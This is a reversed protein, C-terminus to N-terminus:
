WAAKLVSEREPVLHILPLNKDEGNNNFHVDFAMSIRLEDTPNPDVWHVTTAPFYVLTGYKSERKGCTFCTGIDKPGDLFLNGSVMNTTEHFHKHPGIYEGKRFINAWVTIHAEGVLSLFKPGLIQSVIPDSLFNFVTWRGTLSDKGTSGYLSATSGYLDPGLKKIREENNIIYDVLTKREEENVWNEITQIM